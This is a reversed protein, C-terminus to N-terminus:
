RAVENFAKQAINWGKPLEYEAYLTSRANSRSKKHTGNISEMKRRLTRESINFKKEAELYSGGNNFFEVIEAQKRDFRGHGRPKIKKKLELMQEHTWKGDKFQAPLKGLSGWTYVTNIQVQLAEALGKRDYLKM